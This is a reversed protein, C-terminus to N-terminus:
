KQCLSVKNLGWNVASFTKVQSLVLQATEMVVMAVRRDTEFVSAERYKSM